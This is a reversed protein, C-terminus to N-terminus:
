TSRLLNWLYNSPEGDSILLERKGLRQMQAQKIQIEPTTHSSFLIDDHTANHPNTFREKTVDGTLHDNRGLALHLTGFIKEDQIDSGSYPLLQTGFGLEGLIGTAPDSHLKTEWKEITTPNGSILGISNVRGDKVHMVGLTGDEFKMPFQGNANQPVFYVEGAPLNVIDSGTRCLGHSKQAEQKGLEIVLPYTVNQISFIIEISEPHNMGQRLKEAELSVQAYDVSLGTQLIIDNLGHMTAGRFGFKKATATLPATASKTSICLFIDYSPYIEKELHRICGDPSIAYEPLDLNSGATTEYAYLDCCALQFKELIGNLLGRYFVDYALKQAKLHDYKLFAFDIIEGPQDLDILICVKEGPKPHFVTQLLRALDFSPFSTHQKSPAVWHM